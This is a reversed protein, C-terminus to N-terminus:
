GGSAPPLPTPLGDFHDSTKRLFERYKEDPNPRYSHVIEDIASRCLEALLLMAEYPSIPKVHTSQAPPKPRGGVSKYDAM